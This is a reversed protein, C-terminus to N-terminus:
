ITQLFDQFAQKGSVEGSIVDATLEALPLRANHEKAIINISHSTHYGEVTHKPTEGQKIEGTALGLGYQFNRSEESSCTLVLDGVVGPTMVDYDAFHLAKAMTRFEALALTIIQSQTNPGYGLGQAYGCLIAYLNKMASALELSRYGKSEEIKFYPTRLVQKIAEIHEPRKYGLSVVTPDKDLIGKAFSPGILSYYFPYRSVSRVIQNVMLHSSEEIGKSCNVIITDDTLYQKNDLLAQRVFQTPVTLFVLDAPKSLLRSEMAEAYDYDYGNHEVLSAIAKGYNGLGIFAINM